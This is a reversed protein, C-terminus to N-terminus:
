GRWSMLRVPPDSRSRFGAIMWSPSTITRGTVRRRDVGEVSLAPPQDPLCLRDGVLDPEGVQQANGPPVQDGGAIAHKEKVDLCAPERGGPGVRPLGLTEAATEQRAVPDVPWGLIADFNEILPGAKASGGM